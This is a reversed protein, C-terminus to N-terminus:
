FIVNHMKALFDIMKKVGEAKILYRAAKEIFIGVKIM